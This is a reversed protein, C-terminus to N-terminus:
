TVKFIKISIATGAKTTVSVPGTTAGAPLTVVIQTATDSVLTAPTGNFAVKTAPSLNKGTITVKTAVPGSKPTFRTIAPMVTTTIRGISNGNANDFWLAGDPGAAIGLPHSIGLGTYNTVKGTTHGNRTQCCRDVTKDSGSKPAVGRKPCPGSGAAELRDGSGTLRV